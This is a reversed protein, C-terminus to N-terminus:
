PSPAPRLANCAAESDCRRVDNATAAITGSQAIRGAIPVPNWDPRDDCSLRLNVGGMSMGAGGRNLVGRLYERMERRSALGPNGPVAVDDRETLVIELEDPLVNIRRPQLRTACVGARLETRTPDNALQLGLSAPFASEAYCGFEPGSVLAGLDVEAICETVGTLAGVNATSCRGFSSGSFPYPQLFGQNVTDALIQALGPETTSGRLGDAIDASLNPALAADSVPHSLAPSFPADVALRRNGQADTQVYLQVRSFVNAFPTVNQDLTFKVVDLDAATRFWLAVRDDHLFGRGRLV